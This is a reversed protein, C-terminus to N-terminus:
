AALREGCMFALWRKAKAETTFAAHSQGNHRVAWPRAGGVEALEFTGVTFAPHRYRWGRADRIAVICSDLLGM